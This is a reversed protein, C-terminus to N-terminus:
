EEEELAANFREQIRKYAKYAQNRNCGLSSALGDVTKNDQTLGNWIIVLTDTPIDDTRVGKDPMVPVLTKPTEPQRNAKSEYIDTDKSTSSFPYGDEGIDEYGPETDIDEDLLTTQVSRFKKTVVPRNAYREIAQAHKPTNSRHESKRENMHTIFVEGGEFVAFDGQPLTQVLSPDLKGKGVIDIYRNVDNDMTQRGLFYIESGAIVEKRVQAIRQTFIAPTLGRKRGRANVDMFTKLLSNAEEKAIPSVSENQPLFYQAEDLFILCPVRKRPDHDDAWAFMGKIVSVMISAALERTEYAGIQLVVQWGEDLILYGVEEANEPTVEWYLDRYQWKEGWTSPGGIVCQKQLVSPLTVYEEEPDCILMPIHHQGIEEILLAALNSKGSGRMGVGFIAHGLIDDIHPTCGHSLKLVPGSQTSPREIVAVARQQKIDPRPMSRQLLDQAPVDIILPRNPTPIVVSQAISEEETEAIRSRRYGSPALAFDLKSPESTIAKRWQKRIQKFAIPTLLAIAIAAIVAWAIAETGWRAFSSSLVAVLVIFLISYLAMKPNGTQHM